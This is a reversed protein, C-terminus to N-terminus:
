KGRLRKLMSNLENRIVEIKEEPITGGIRNQEALRIRFQELTNVFLDNNTVYYIEILKIKAFFKRYPNKFPYYLACEQANKYDKLTLYYNAWCLGIIDEADGDKDNIISININDLFMKVWESYETPKHEISHCQHLKLAATVFNQVINPSITGLRLLANDAIGGQWHLKYIDFCDKLAEIIQPTDEAHTKKLYAYRHQLFNRVHAKMDLLKNFPIGTLDKKELLDKLAIIQNRDYTENETLALISSYAEVIDSKLSFTEKLEDILQALVESNAVLTEDQKVVKSRNQVYILWELSHIAYLNNLPQIVELINISNKGQIDLLNLYDYYLNELVYEKYFYASDKAKLPVLANKAKQYYRVFEDYLENEFYFKALTFHEEFDNKEQRSWFLYNKVITLFGSTVKDLDTDKEGEKKDPSFVKIFAEERLFLKSIHKEEFYNLLAIFQLPSQRVNIQNTFFPANMFDRLRAYDKAKFTKLITVLEKNLTREENMILPRGFFGTKKYSVKLQTNKKIQKPQFLKAYTKLLM